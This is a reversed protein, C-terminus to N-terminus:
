AFPSLLVTDPFSDRKRSPPFGMLGPAPFVQERGRNQWLDLNREQSWASSSLGGYPANWVPAMPKQTEVCRFTIRSLPRM